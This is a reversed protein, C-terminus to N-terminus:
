LGLPGRTRRAPHGARVVHRAPLGAGVLGPAGVARPPVLLRRVVERLVAGEEALGPDHPPRLPHRLGPRPPEPGGGAPPPAPAPRGPSAGPRPTSSIPQPAAWHERQSSVAPASGTPSSRDAAM